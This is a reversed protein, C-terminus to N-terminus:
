FATYRTNPGNILTSAIVNRKGGSPFFAYFWDPLNRILAIYSENPMKVSDKEGVKKIEVFAHKFYYIPENSYNMWSPSSNLKKPKYFNHSPGKDFVGSYILCGNTGCIDGGKVLYYGDEQRESETFGMVKRLGEMYAEMVFVKVDKGKTVSEPVLAFVHFQESVATKDMFADALFLAAFSGHLLSPLQAFEVSAVALSAGTALYDKPKETFKFSDPLSDPKSDELGPSYGALKVICYSISNTKTCDELEHVPMDAFVVSSLLTLFSAALIKLSKMTNIILLKSTNIIDVNAYFEKLTDGIPDQVRLESGWSV